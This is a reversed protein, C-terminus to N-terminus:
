GPQRWTLSCNHSVVEYPLGGSFGKVNERQHKCSLMFLGPKEAAFHVIGKEDTTLKEEHGDPHSATVKAYAVPEGRFCVQYEGTNGAPVIDLNLSPKLKSSGAPIWRAYFIPKRAPTNTSIPAGEAQMREPTMVAFGAELQVSDESTAHIIQIQDSKKKLVLHIPEGNTGSKWAIPPDVQDLHGPSSEYEDPWEAFRVTLGHGHTDEIWLYHAQVNCVFLACLAAFLFLKTIKM